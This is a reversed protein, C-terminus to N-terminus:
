RTSALILRGMIVSCGDVGTQNCVGMSNLWIYFKGDDAKFLNIIEHGLNGQQTIYRGTYMNNLIIM